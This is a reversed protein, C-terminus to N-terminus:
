AWGLRRLNREVEDQDSYYEKRGQRDIYREHGKGAILAVWPEDDPRAALLDFLRAVARPRELEVEPGEKPMGTLIDEVIRRPDETRPNDSTLIVHDSYRAAAAGMLPRKGRDRDGGCGFLTLVQAGPFADRISTLISRLADPTHAFDVVVVKSGVVRCEFRGDVAKLHRWYERAGGGGGVGGGGPVGSPDAPDDALADVLAAALAYNERNHALALYPKAAIADSGLAAATVLEVPVASRRTELLRLTVEPSCCYLRGGDRILDLIRAKAAFYAAEDGHYDLHDQSFNTWGANDFRIGQLRGQDLAHSSAEMAVLDYDRRYAHLIRRLEIQPPSTFGTEILPTGSLSVGLTGVTLVRRGYASLISELYKVTTTKGNTGTVGIVAAPDPALPYLLDCFQQVVQPWDEEGTVYIGKGALAPFSDLMRNTVLFSFASEALYRRHIEADSRGDDLRQFFLISGPRCADARWQIDTPVIGPQPDRRWVFPLRMLLDALRNSPM